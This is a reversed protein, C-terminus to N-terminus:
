SENRLMSSMPEPCYTFIFAVQGLACIGGVFANWLLVKSAAPRFRTLVVGSLLLGAILGVVSVPGVLASSESASKLFQVEMYKTLFTMFPTAGLIYFIGSTINFM